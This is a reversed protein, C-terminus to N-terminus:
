WAMWWRRAIYIAGLRAMKNWREGALRLVPQRDCQLRRIMGLTQGGLM